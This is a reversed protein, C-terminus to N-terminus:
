GVTNGARRVAARQELADRLRGLARAHVRSAWSKSVGLDRGIDLLSEGHFYHREIFARDMDDLAALAEAIAPGLRSVDIAGHLQESLEDAAIGAHRTDDYAYITPAAGGAHPRDRRKRMRGRTGPGAHGLGEIMAGRVRLYAFSGFSVARTEDFRNSALLLAETGISVLEDVELYPAARRAMRNAIHHVVKLHEQVLRARRAAAPCSSSSSSPTSSAATTTHMAAGLALSTGGPDDRLGGSRPGFYGQEVGERSNWGPEM